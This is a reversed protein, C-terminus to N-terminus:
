LRRSGRERPHADPKQARIGFPHRRTAVLSDAFEHSLGSWRSFGRLPHRRSPVLM